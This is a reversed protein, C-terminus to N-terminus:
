GNPIGMYKLMVRIVDTEEPTLLGETQIFKLWDYPTYKLAAAFFSRETLLKLPDLRTSRTDVYIVYQVTYNFVDIVSDKVGESKVQLNGTHVWTRIRDLKKEVEWAWVTRPDKQVDLLARMFRSQYDRNKAVFIDTAEALFADWDMPPRTRDYPNMLCLENLSISQGAPLSLYIDPLTHFTKLEVGEQDLVERIRGYARRLKVSTGLDTMKAAGKSRSNDRGLCDAGSYDM